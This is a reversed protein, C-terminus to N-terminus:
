KRAKMELLTKECWSKDSDSLQHFFSQMKDCAAQFGATNERAKETKALAEYGFFFELPSAENKQCIELCNQAHRLALPYLEAKLCTMALRYEAREVQLWTGAKEWYKRATQAALVMLETELFSRRPKEELNSALNNGAIALARCAPDPNSLGENAIELATKFIQLARETDREVLASAAIAKAQIRESASTLASSPVVGSAIKLAETHIEIFKKVEPTAQSCKKLAQIMEIAQTWLGLHEGAVHTMLRVMATAHEPSEILRVGENFHAMVKQPQSQHDLWAQNLYSDFSM